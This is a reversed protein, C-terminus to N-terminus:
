RLLAPLLCCLVQALPLPRRQWNSMQCRKDLGPGQLWEGALKSLGGAAVQDDAAAARM